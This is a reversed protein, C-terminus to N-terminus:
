FLTLQKEASDKRAVKIIYECGGSGNRRSCSAKIGAASLSEILRSISNDFFRLDAAGSIKQRPECVDPSTSKEEASHLPGIREALASEGIGLRAAMGSHSLRFFDMMRCIAAAEGLPGLPLSHVSDSIPLLASLLPNAWVVVCPLKALACRRAALLRREGSLLEYGGEDKQRVILPQLLGNQRISEALQSIAAEQFDRRPQHPNPSIDETKIWRLRM